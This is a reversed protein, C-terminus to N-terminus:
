LPNSKIIRKIISMQGLHYHVHEIIGHINRYWTGYKPDSFPQDLYEDPLNELLFCTEHVVSFVMSKFCQWEEETHIAPHDFSLADKTTLPEGKLVAHLATIFYYQHYTLALLSQLGLPKCIAEEVSVDQLVSRVDSASWNSGFYVERLHQAARQLLHNM